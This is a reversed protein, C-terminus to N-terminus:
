RTPQIIWLISRPLVVTASLRHRLTQRTLLPPVRYASRTGRRGPGGGENHLVSRAQRKIERIAEQLQILLNRRLRATLHLQRAFHRRLPHSVSVQDVREVFFRDGGGLHLPRRGRSAIRFRHEPFLLIWASARLPHDQVIEEGEFKHTSVQTLLESRLEDALNVANHRIPREVFRLICPAQLALAFLSNTDIPTFALILQQMNRRWGLLQGFAELAQAVEGIAHALIRRLINRGEHPRENNMEHHAVVMVEDISVPARSADNSLPDHKALSEEQHVEHWDRPEQAFRGRLIRAREKLHLLVLTVEGVEQDPM